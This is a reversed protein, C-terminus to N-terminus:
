FEGLVEQGRATGLSRWTNLDINESIFRSSGDCLVVQVGGKHNSRAAFMTPATSTAVACPLNKGPQDNCYFATYIRDPLNSNPTLYTSFQSADGWWSFGRLDSGEGQLVEAMLLTTSTGDVVDRFGFASLNAFPAGSFAVGNVTGQGLSTNGFNVVYNHSTLNGFPRSEKDSPCSLASLRRNTVLTSNPAAGYRPGTADNGGSNQYLSFLQAQEIYPLIAVMWTGWCCSYQGVPFKNHVDHYNHMAIGLQKLNNKCQTRRAAERAQQVAPLLLAILIAIIAIVVLLEILTFGRSRQSRRSSMGNAGFLFNISSFIFPNV